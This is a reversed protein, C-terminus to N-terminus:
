VWVRRSRPLNISCLRSPNLQDLDSETLVYKEGECPSSAFKCGGVLKGANVFAHGKLPWDHKKYIPTVLSAGLAWFANGGLYDRNDRPGM